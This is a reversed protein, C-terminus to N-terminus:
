GQEALELLRRVGERKAEILMDVLEDLENPHVNNYWEDLVEGAEDKKQTVITFSVGLHKGDEDRMDHVRVIHRNKSRAPKIERITERQVM